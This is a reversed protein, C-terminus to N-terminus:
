EVVQIALRFAPLKYGLALSPHDQAFTLLPMNYQWPWKGHGGDYIMPYLDILHTGPGGTAQIPVVVDGYSAFGCAYGIYANDYTVAVGNDIETWGVGKLHVNFVAGAKVVSPTVEILSREIFFPADVLSVQNKELALAHWGGLGDPITVAKTVSGDAGITVESVKEKSLKWGFLDNGTVTVWVLDATSNAPLGTARFTAQTLVPGTAPSITAAAGAVAKGTLTTRQTADALSIASPDPWDVTAKPAGADATVNFEARYPFLFAVPSQQMNLYPLTHSAGDLSLYHKGVPGSARIQAVATGRTTTATIFGTYKNDYRLATTSEFAKWGVGTIKITILTGVPGERPSVTYTRNLRFGGKAVDQGDVALYLDHVEGFDEPANFKLTAKGEGDIPASGLSVRKEKFVREYFEVRNNDLKTDYRGDQTVWILQATKGSPLGSGTITVSTGVPGTEPDTKLLKLAVGPSSVAPSATGPSAPGPSATGPSAPGQSTATSAAPSAPAPTVKRADGCGVVLVASALVGVLLRTRSTPKSRPM